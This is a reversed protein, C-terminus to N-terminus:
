TVLWPNADRCKAEFRACLFDPRKYLGSLWSALLCLEELREVECAACLPFFISFSEAITALVRAIQEQSLGLDRELTAARTLRVEEVQYEDRILKVIWRFMNMWIKVDDVSRQM